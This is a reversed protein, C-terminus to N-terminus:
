FLFFIGSAYRLSWSNGQFQIIPLNAPAGGSDYEDPKLKMYHAATELRIGARPSFFFELGAIIQGALVTSYTEKGQVASYDYSAKRRVFAVGAGMGFYPVIDDAGFRYKLGLVAPYATMEFQHFLPLTPDNRLTNERRTEYTYYGINLFTEWNYALTLFFSTEINFFTSYSMSTGGAGRVETSNVISTLPLLTSLMIDMGFDTSRAENETFKERRYSGFLGKFDKKAFAETSFVLALVLATIRALAFATVGSHSRAGSGM